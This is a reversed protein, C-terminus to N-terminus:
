TVLSKDQYGYLLITYQQMNKLFDVRSEDMLGDDSSATRGLAAPWWDTKPFGGAADRLQRSESAEVGEQPSPLLLNM